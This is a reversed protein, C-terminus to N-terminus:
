NHRPRLLSQIFPTWDPHRVERLTASVPLPRPEEPTRILHLGVEENLRNGKKWNTPKSTLVKNTWSDDGGRSRPIVHDVSADSEKLPRGNYQDIGRDRLYIQYFTPNGKFRKIHVKSYNKAVLVTPVRITLHQSHLVLDWERIPLTIWEEWTMPTMYKPREFDPTGDEQREYDIDLAYSNEGAVLDVVSKWVLGYGVPQWLANLKLVIPRDEISQM